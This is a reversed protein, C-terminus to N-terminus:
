SILSISGNVLTKVAAFDYLEDITAVDYKELMANLEASYKMRDSLYTTLQKAADSIVKLEDKKENYELIHNYSAATLREGGAIVKLGREELETKSLDSIEDLLYGAFLSLLGMEERKKTAPNWEQKKLIKEIRYATKFYKEPAGYGDELQERWENLKGAVIEFFDDDSITPKIDSFGNEDIKM